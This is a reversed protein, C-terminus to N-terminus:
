ADQRCAAHQKEMNEGRTEPHEIQEEQQRTRHLGWLPGPDARSVTNSVGTVAECVLRSSDHPGEVPRAAM